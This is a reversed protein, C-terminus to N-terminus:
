SCCIIMDIQWKIYDHKRITQILLTHPEKRVRHKKLKRHLWGIIFVSLNDIIFAKGYRSNTEM